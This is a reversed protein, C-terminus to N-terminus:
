EQNDIKNYDRDSRRILKELYSLKRFHETLEYADFGCKNCEWGTDLEGLCEPCTDDAVMDIRMQETPTM